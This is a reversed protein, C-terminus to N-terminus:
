SNNHNHQRKTIISMRVFVNLCDWTEFDVGFFLLQDFITCARGGCVMSKM